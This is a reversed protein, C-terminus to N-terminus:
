GERLPLPEAGAESLLKAATALRTQDNPVPEVAVLIKGLTVAQDFYDAAEKEYGREMMVGTLAGVVGGSLMGAVAGPILIPFSAIAALGGAAALGGLVGGVVGGTAAAEVSTPDAQAVMSGPFHQQQHETSCIVTLEDSRFGAERLSQVAVEAREVSVFVGARVPRTTREASNSM